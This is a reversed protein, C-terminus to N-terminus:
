EYVGLGVKFKRKYQGQAIKKFLKQNLISDVKDWFENLNIDLYLCFERLSEESYKGDFEEVIAIGQDRNILRGWILENADDTARGFGYKYYKIMQNISVWSDDISTIGHLDGDIQPDAKNIDLGNLCSLSANHYSSWEPIFPGLFVTRIKAKFIEEKSPFDYLFLDSKTYGFKELWELCGNNLTNMRLLNAGDWPSDGLVNTEGLQLASNEGWWILPIQRQIAFRPVSAFLALECGKLINAYKHFSIRIIEKWLSPDPHILHLDFGLKILNELNNVGRKSLQEPPYSLSVLLPNMKLVDRVYLAQFSSDKGGSVGILCDYGNNSNSRGFEVIEKLDSQFIIPDFKNLNSCVSCLGSSNLTTGPRSDTNLCKTCYKM